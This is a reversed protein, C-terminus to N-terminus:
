RSSSRLISGEAGLFVASADRLLGLAIPGVIGVPDSAPESSSADLRCDRGAFVESLPGTAWWGAVFLFIVVSICDLPTDAVELLASAQHYPILLFRTV